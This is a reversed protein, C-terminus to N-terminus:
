LPEVTIKLRVRFSNSYKLAEFFAERGIYSQVKGPGMIQGGNYAWQDCGDYHFEIEHEIENEPLIKTDLVYWYNDKKYFPNTAGKPLFAEPHIGTLLQMVKNHLRYATSDIEVAM